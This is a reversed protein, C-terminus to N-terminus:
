ETEEPFCNLLLHSLAGSVTNDEGHIYTITMDYQSMFEQWCLQQRSLDKQTDFNELM